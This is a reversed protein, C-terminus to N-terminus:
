VNRLLEVDRQTRVCTVCCIAPNRSDGPASTASTFSPAAGRRGDHECWTSVCSEARLGSIYWLNWLAHVLDAKRLFKGTFASPPLHEVKKHGKGELTKTKPHYLLKTPESDPGTCLTYSRYISEVCDTERGGTVCQM